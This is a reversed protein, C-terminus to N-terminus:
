AADRPSAVLSYTMASRYTAPRGNLRDSVRRRRAARRDAIETRWAADLAHFYPWVRDAATLGRNFGHATAFRRLAALSPEVGVMDALEDLGESFDGYLQGLVCDGPSAINLRGPDIEVV